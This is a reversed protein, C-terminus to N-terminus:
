GTIELNVPRLSIALWLHAVLTIVLPRQALGRNCINALLYILKM